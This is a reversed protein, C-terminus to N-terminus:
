HMRIQREDYHAKLQVRLFSLMVTLNEYLVASISVPTVEPSWGKKIASLIDSYYQKTSKRLSERSVPPAPSIFHCQEAESFQSYRSLFDAQPITKGARHQIDYNYAALAISWRQLMAAISKAISKNPNFLFQLAQHDTFITFRLGFLYEYLRRVAWFVALAEKQTQLYGKEAANLLRSICIVPCGEQKLVAGIRHYGVLVEAILKTWIGAQGLQWDDNLDILKSERNNM